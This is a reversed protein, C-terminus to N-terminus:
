RSTTWAPPLTLSGNRPGSAARATGSGPAPPPWCPRVKRAMATIPEKFSAPLPQGALQNLLPKRDFLDLHSPGGELFLWIVHKARALHHELQARQEAQAQDRLAMWQLALAGFGVGSQQLFERRSRHPLPSHHPIPSM